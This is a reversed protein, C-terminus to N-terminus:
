AQHTRTASKKLVRIQLESQLHSVDISPADDLCLRALFTLGVCCTPTHARVSIFGGEPNARRFAPQTRVRPEADQINKLTRLRPAPGRRGNHRPYSPRPSKIERGFVANLQATASSPYAQDPTRNGSQIPTLQLPQTRPAAAPIHNTSNHNSSTHYKFNEPNYQQTPSTYPNSRTPSQRASLSQPTYASYSSHTSQQPSTTYPSTPSFANMPSYRRAAASEETLYQNSPRHAHHPRTPYKLRNYPDADEMAVDGDDSMLDQNRSGSAPSGTAPQSMSQAMTQSADYNYGSGVRYQSPQGSGSSNRAHATGSSAYRAQQSGSM